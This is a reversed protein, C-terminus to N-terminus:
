QFGSSQNRKDIINESTVKRQLLGLRIHHNHKSANLMVTSQCLFVVDNEFCSKNHCSVVFILLVELSCGSVSNLKKSVKLNELISHVALFPCFTYSNLPILVEFNLMIKM